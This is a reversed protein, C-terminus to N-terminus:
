VTASPAPAGADIEREDVAVVAHELAVFMTKHSEPALPVATVNAGPSVTPPPTISAAGPAVRVSDPVSLPEDEKTSKPSVFALVPVTTREPAL